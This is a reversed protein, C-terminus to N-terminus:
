LIVAGSSVLSLLYGVRMGQQGQRRYGVGDGDEEGGWRNSIVATSDFVASRVGFSIMFLSGGDNGSRKPIDELLM